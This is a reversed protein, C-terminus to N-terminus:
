LMEGPAYRNTNLYEVTGVASGIPTIVYTIDDLFGYLPQMAAPALIKVFVPKQKDGEKNLDSGVYKDLDTEEWLVVTKM